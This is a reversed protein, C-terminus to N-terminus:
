SSALFSVYLQSYERVMREASFRESAASRCVAADLRDVGAIARAMEDADRVLFGTRGEEIVEALAGSPFAVVPTGCALSEMAVLSSTEAVLSPILVCRASAMLRVKEAIGVPGLFRHPPSLRPQLVQHWYQEHEPYPFLKGALYLPVGAKEAADIALHFGKEPCIRGLALVYDEAPANPAKLLDLPVGNEIVPTMLASPPCASAQSASVCNLWTHARPLNFITEPYFSPPLHLTVLAPPGAAPLYHFFDLGHFHVVDVRRGRLVECITSQWRRYTSDSEANDAPIAILEGMVRSGEAAIVISHHGAANLGRDLLALIQEAGGASDLSVPAFPYAVSLITLIDGGRARAGSRCCSGAM